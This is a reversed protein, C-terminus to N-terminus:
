HAPALLPLSPETGELRLVDISQLEILTAGGYEGNQVVLPGYERAAPVVLNFTVTQGSADRFSRALFDHEDKTAIGVGASGKLIRARVRVLLGASRRDDVRISLVAGYAWRAAPPEIVLPLGNHHAAGAPADIAAKDWDVNMSLHLLPATRETENAIFRSVLADSFTTAVQIPRDGARLKTLLTSADAPSLRGRVIDRPRCSQARAERELADERDWQNGLLLMVPTQESAAANYNFYWRYFAAAFRQLPVPRPCQWVSFVTTGDAVQQFFEGGSASLFYGRVDTPARATTFLMFDDHRNPSTPLVFGRLSLRRDLYWPGLPALHPLAHWWDRDIVFMDTAGLYPEIDRGARNAETLENAAIWPYTAGGTYWPGLSIMGLLAHPGVVDFAAARMLEFNLPSRTWVRERGTASPVQALSAVIVAVVAVITLQRGRPTSRSIFWEAAVFGCMFVGTFYFTM